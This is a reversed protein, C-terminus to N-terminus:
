LELVYEFVQRVVNTRAIGPFREVALMIGPNLVDAPPFYRQGAPLGGRLISGMFLAAERVTEGAADAYDFDFRLHLYHTPTVAPQYRGTPVIISGASVTEGGYAKVGLRKGVSDRGNRSSGVGKKHAM